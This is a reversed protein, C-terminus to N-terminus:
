SVGAPELAETAEDPNTEDGAARWWKALLPLLM